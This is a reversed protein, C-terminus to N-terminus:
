QADNEVLSIEHNCVDSKILKIFNQINISVNKANYHSLNANSNYIYM